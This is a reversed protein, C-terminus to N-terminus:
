SFTLHCLIFCTFEFLTQQWKFVILKVAAWSCNKLESLFFVHLINRAALDIWECFFFFILDFFFCFLIYINLFTWFFFASHNKEVIPTFLTYSFFISLRLQYFRWVPPLYRMNENIFCNYAQIRHGYKGFRIKQIAAESTEM